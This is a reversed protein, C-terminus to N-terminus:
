HIGDAQFWINHRILRFQENDVAPYILVWGTDMQDWTLNIEPKKNLDKLM